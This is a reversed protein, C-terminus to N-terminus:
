GELEPGEPGTDFLLLVLVPLLLMKLERTGLEHQSEVPRKYALHLTSKLFPFM